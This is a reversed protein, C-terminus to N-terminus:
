QTVARVEIGSQHRSASGVFTVTRVSLLKSPMLPSGSNQSIPECNSLECIQSCIWAQGRGLRMAQSLLSGRQAETQKMELFCTIISVYLATSCVFLPDCVHQAQYPMLCVIPASPGDPGNEKRSHQSYPLWLEPCAELWHHQSM